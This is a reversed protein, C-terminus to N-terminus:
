RHLTLRGIFCTPPGADPDYGCEIGSKVREISEVKEEGDAVHQGSMRLAVCYDMKAELNEIRPPGVSCDERYSGSTGFPRALGRVIQAIKSYETGLVERGIAINWARRGRCKM